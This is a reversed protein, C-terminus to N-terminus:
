WEGLIREPSINEKTYVAHGDEGEGFRNDWESMDKAEPDDTLSLGTLDVKWITMPKAEDSCDEDEHFDKFWEAYEVELWFYNKKGLNQKKGDKWIKIDRGKIGQKLIKNDNKTASVHYGILQKAETLVPKMKRGYYGYRKNDRDDVVEIDDTYSGLKFNKQLANYIRKFKKNDYDSCNFYLIHTIGIVRIWGDELADHYAYDEGSWDYLWGEHTESVHVEYLTDDPALWFKFDTRAEKLSSKYLVVM